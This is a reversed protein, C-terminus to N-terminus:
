SEYLLEELLLALPSSHPGLWRPHRPLCNSGNKGFPAAADTDAM